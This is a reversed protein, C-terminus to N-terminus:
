EEVLYTVSGYIFRLVTARQRKYLDVQEVPVQLLIRNTLGRNQKVGLDPQRAQEDDAPDPLRLNEVWGKAIDIRESAKPFMVRAAHYCSSPVAYPRETGSRDSKCSKVGASRFLDHNLMLMTMIRMHWASVAGKGRAYGQELVHSPQDMQFVLLRDHPGDAHCNVAVNM